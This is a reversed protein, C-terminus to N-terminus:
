GRGKSNLYDVPAGVPKKEPLLIGRTPINYKSIAEFAAEPLVVVAPVGDEGSYQVFQADQYHKHWYYAILKQVILNMVEDDEIARIIFRRFIKRDQFVNYESFINALEKEIRSMENDPKLQEKNLKM